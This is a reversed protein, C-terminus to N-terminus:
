QEFVMLFITFLSPSILFSRSCYHITQNINRATEFGHLVPHLLQPCGVCLYSFPSLAHRSGSGSGSSYLICGYGHRTHGWQEVGQKVQVMASKALDTLSFTACLILCTGTRSIGEESPPEDSFLSIMVVWVLFFCRFDLVSLVVSERTYM